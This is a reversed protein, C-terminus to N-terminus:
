GLYDELNVLEGKLERAFLMANAYLQSDTLGKRLYASLGPADWKALVGANFFRFGKLGQMEAAKTFIFSAREESHPPFMECEKAWPFGESTLKRGLGIMDEFTMNFFGAVEDMKNTSMGKKGSLLLSVYQRSTGLHEILDTQVGGYKADLLHNMAVVFLEKPSKSVTEEKCLDHM